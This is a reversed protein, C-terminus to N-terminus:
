RTGLDPSLLVMKRGVLAARRGTSLDPGQLRGPLRRGRGGRDRGLQEGRWLGESQAETHADTCLHM